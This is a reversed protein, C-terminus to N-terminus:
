YTLDISQTQLRHIAHFTLKTVKVKAKEFKKIVADELKRGNTNDPFDSNWLNKDPISSKNQQKNKLPLPELPLTTKHAINKKLLQLEKLEEKIENIEKRLNTINEKYQAENKRNIRAEQLETKNM